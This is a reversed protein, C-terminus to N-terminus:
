LPLYAFAHPPQSIRSSMNCFLSFTVHEKSHQLWTNFNGWSAKGNEDLHVPKRSSTRCFSAYTPLKIRNYNSPGLLPTSCGVWSWKKRARLQKGKTWKPHALSTSGPLQTMLCPNKVSFPSSVVALTTCPAPFTPTNPWLSSIM